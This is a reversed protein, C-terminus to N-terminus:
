DTIQRTRIMQILLILKYFRPISTFNLQFFNNFDDKNNPWTSSIKRFYSAPFCVILDLLFWSRLYKIAIIKRNIVLRSKEDYLPMNFTIIINAFFMLDLFFDFYVSGWTPEQEFAAKYPIYFAILLKLTTFVSNYIVFVPGQIPFM